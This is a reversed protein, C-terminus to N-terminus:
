QIRIAINLFGGATPAGTLNTGTMSVTSAALPSAPAWAALFNPLTPGTLTYNTSM